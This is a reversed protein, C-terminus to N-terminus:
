SSSSSKNGGQVALQRLTPVAIFVTLLFSLLDALPQSILFGNYGFIAPMILILPIFFLGQRSMALLSASFTKGLNQMFMNTMIIFGHFLFGACHWRLLPTGAAIVAPDDRFFAVAAESVAFALGGYILLFITSAKVCFAYVKKVRDYRKAGLNFGCVPQFGQGFGIVASSGLMVIKNVVSVAAIVAEGYAGAAHNLAIASISAFGQRLLSPTGFRLIGIIKEKNLELRVRKLSLRNGMVLLIVFSVAQSLVTALAAGSVKMDLVFIFLPDLCVNLVAGIAIGVMGRAASGQFRLQNNLTFSAMMFPVGFLLIRVYEETSDVLQPIAGLLKVLPNILLIGLLALIIGTLFSLALGTDAMRDASDTDGEGLKRSIYNGSGHGYFFGASQIINMLPLALGVAATSITDLQGVFYADAMNYLASILMSIITPVAMKCVLREVPQKTMMILKEEPTQM